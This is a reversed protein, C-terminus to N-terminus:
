PKKCSKLAKEVSAVVEDINFPKNIFGTAGFRKSDIYAADEGYGTIMIVRTDPNRNKAEKLVEIGGVGPMKIDCLILDFTEKKIKGIAEQGNAATTINYNKSELGQELLGRIGQDDEAILIKAKIELTM